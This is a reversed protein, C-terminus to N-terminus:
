KRLKTIEVTEATAEFCGKKRALNFSSRYKELREFNCVDREMLELIRLFDSKGVGMVRRM